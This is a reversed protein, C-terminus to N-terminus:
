ARRRKPKFLGWMDKEDINFIEEFDKMYEYTPNKVGNEINSYHSPSICTKAAMEKSKLGQELRFMRLKVRDM